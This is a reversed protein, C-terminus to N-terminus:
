CCIDRKPPCGRLHGTSRTSTLRGHILKSCQVLGLPQQFYLLDRPSDGDLVLQPAGAFDFQIGALLPPTRLPSVCQRLSLPDIVWAHDSSGAAKGNGNTHDRLQTSEACSRYIYLLLFVTVIFVLNLFHRVKRSQVVVYIIGVNDENM